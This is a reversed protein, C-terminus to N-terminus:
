LRQARPQAAGVRPLHTVSRRQTTASAGGAAAYVTASGTYAFLNLFRAGRAAERLRARTMRHDLFLGTDLYDEFNVLFKLGGEAVLTFTARSASRKTNSAADRAAGRACASASRRYAAAGAALEGAGRRAAQARGRARDGAPAAYEQVYLWPEDPELWATAPRHRLRIRAHRRRLASLLHNGRAADLQAPAQPEQRLPERVDACGATDRLQATGKGLRGATASATARRGQHAAAPMRARREVGRAHSLRAPRAGHRAAPAGTLIAAQWGQFRERLLAASNAICGRAGADLDDLRVGYPPNTCLLGPDAPEATARCSALARSQAFQLRRGSARRARRQCPRQPHRRRM